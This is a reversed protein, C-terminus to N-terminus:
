DNIKWHLFPAALYAWSYARYEGNTFVRAFGGLESELVLAGPGAASVRYVAGDVGRVVDDVALAAVLPVPLSFPVKAQPPLEQRLLWRAAVRRVIRDAV